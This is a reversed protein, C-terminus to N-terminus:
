EGFAANFVAEEPSKDMNKALLCPDTWPYVIGNIVKSGVTLTANLTKGDEGIGEGSAWYRVTDARILGALFNNYGNVGTVFGVAEQAQIELTQDCVITAYDQWFKKWEAWNGPDGNWSNRNESYKLGTESSTFGAWSGYVSLDIVMIRVMDFAQLDLAKQLAVGTQSAQRIPPLSADQPNKAYQLQFNFRVPKKEPNSPLKNCEGFIIVIMVAALITKILRNM